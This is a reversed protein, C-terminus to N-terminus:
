NAKRRCRAAPFNPSAACANSIPARKGLTATSQAVTARAAALAAKSKTVADSLRATDLRAIVQGKTVQDNEEALVAELTGSLESGVDVSRTPQLTGSASISVVLYGTVASETFYQGGAGDSGRSYLFFVVAAAIGALLALMWRWRRGSRGSSTDLFDPITENSSHTDNAYENANM